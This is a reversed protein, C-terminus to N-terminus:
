DAKKKRDLSFHSDMLFPSLQLVTHQTFLWLATSSQRPLAYLAYIPSSLLAWATVLQPIGSVEASVIYLVRANRLIM